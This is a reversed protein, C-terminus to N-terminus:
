LSAGLGEMIARLEGCGLTVPIHIKIDGKEILIEPVYSVPLLMPAQVEVFSEKPEAEAKVWRVFTQPVLGNEKAYAWASIGSRKWDELWMAKEEKSFNM